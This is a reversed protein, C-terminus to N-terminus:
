HAVVPKRAMVAYDFAARWPAVLANITGSGPIEEAVEEIPLTPRADFLRHIDSQSFGRSQVMWRLMEPPLPNRHTPDMYFSWQAVLANEPNPTEVLFGGGPVLVRLVEDFFEIMLDFPLHEVVHFMSVMGLSADPLSRLKELGDMLQVTLGAQRCDTVFIANMDVGSAKYGEERLLQLWEGRGCGIDLVPANSGGAGVDSVFKLYPRLRAAIEEKSGRFQAEFDSYLQDLSAAVASARPKSREKREISARQAAIEGALERISERMVEVDSVSAHADMARELSAIQAGQERALKSLDRRLFFVSGGLAGVHSDMRDMLTAQRLSGLLWALGNGVVPVKRLRRLKYPILLGDVHVSRAMGEASFRIEGLIEVKSMKGQRLDRLYSRAHEDPERLLLARYAHDIFEVDDFRVLDGLVYERKQEFNLSPREALILSNPEVQQLQRGPEGAPRAGSDVGLRFRVRRMVESASLLGEDSM